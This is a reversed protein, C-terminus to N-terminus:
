KWLLKRFRNFYKSNVGGLTDVFDQTLKFPAKEFQLGKGPANSLMFGFDIHVIHGKDTIMINANHRDKIQLFYCVLSYGALSNIFNDMAHRYKDSNIPGFYSKYFDSLGEYNKVKRKLQDISIANPVVEIIGCNNGTALIEYSSVWCDVKELRFIQNFENILQTAFQEQRLDEGSKIIIKFLKYTSLNGFPSTKRLRETQVEIKEGFISDWDTIPIQESAAVEVEVVTSKHEEEIHQTGLYEGKYIIDEPQCEESVNSKKFSARHDFSVQHVVEEITRFEKIDGGVEIDDINHTNEKVGNESAYNNKIFIPKSLKIDAEQLYNVGGREKNNIFTKTPYSRHHVDSKILGTETLAKPSVLTSTFSLSRKSKFDDKSTSLKDVEDESKSKLLETVEEIRFAELTIMYPARSKTKFIKVESIPINGITYYRISGGQFPIYVNAPLLKNIRKIENVLVRMREDEYVYQIMECINCLNDIFNVNSLFSTLNIDDTDIQKLYQICLGYLTDNNIISDYRRFINIYIDDPRLKMSAENYETNHIFANYYMDIQLDLCDRVKKKRLIYSIQTQDPDIDEKNDLYVPLYNCRALYEIYHKSGAIHLRELVDRCHESKFITQIIHLISKIKDSYVSDTNM